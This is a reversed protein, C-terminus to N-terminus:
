EILLKPNAKVKDIDYELRQYMTQGSGDAIVMNGMLSRKLNVLGSLHAEIAAKIYLVMARWLRRKEDDISKEIQVQTKIQGKNNLRMDSDQPSPYKILFKYPHGEFIFQVSAGEKSEAIAVADSNNKLLLGRVESMSRDVPVSTKSAYRAMSDGRNLFHSQSFYQNLFPNGGVKWGLKQNIRM